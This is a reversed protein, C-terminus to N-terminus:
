NNNLLKNNLNVFEHGVKKIFTDKNIKYIKENVLLDGLDEAKKIVTCYESYISGQTYLRDQEESM